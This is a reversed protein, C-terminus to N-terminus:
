SAKREAPPTSPPQPPKVPIVPRNIRHEKLEAYISQALGSKAFGIAKAGKIGFFKELDAGTFRRVVPYHAFDKLIEARIGDAIDETILVFHLKSKSRRLTERGVLLIRARLVFPFLREVPPKSSGSTVDPPGLAIDTFIMTESRLKVVRALPTRGHLALSERLATEKGAGSALVWVKRAAAIAPYGLTVRNPPPKPSNQIARYVARSQRQEGSERPFLSAVHGDEGMGLLVLDIVPQGASDLPAMRCLETAAEAAAAEPSIEGRIRHIQGEPIGLPTLLVEEAVRFNSEGDEPPVCREDAWFFHVRDFSFRRAKAEEVALAFFKQAIRGGSLAVCCPSTGARRGSEIEDLWAGAVARALEDATAFSILRFPNM